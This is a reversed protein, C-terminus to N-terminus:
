IACMNFLITIEGDMKFLFFHRISLNKVPYLLKLKFTNIKKKVTYLQFERSIFYKGSDFLTLFQAFKTIHQFLYFLFSKIEHDQIMTAM